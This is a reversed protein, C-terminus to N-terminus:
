KRTSGSGVGKGSKVLRYGCARVTLLTAILVVAEALLMWTFAIERLLLFAGLAAVATVILLVAGRIPLRAQGLAAWPVALAVAIFPLTILTVLLLMDFGSLGIELHLALAVVIATLLTLALLHRIGFQLRQVPSREHPAMVLRFRFYRLVALGATVATVTFAFIYYTQWDNDDAAFSFGVVLYGTGVILGGLRLRWSASGLACWLGVLGAQAFALGVFLVGVASDSDYGFLRVCAGLTVAAVLHAIVLCIIALQRRPNTQEHQCDSQV